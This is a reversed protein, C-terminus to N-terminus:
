CTLFISELIEGKMGKENKGVVREDFEPSELANIKM